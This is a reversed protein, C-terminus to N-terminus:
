LMGCANGMRLWILGTGLGWCWKVASTDYEWRSWPRGLPRKEEIKIVVITYSNKMKM